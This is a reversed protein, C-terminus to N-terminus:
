RDVDRNGSAGAAEALEVDAALQRWQEAMALFAERYFGATRSAQQECERAHERCVEARRSRM